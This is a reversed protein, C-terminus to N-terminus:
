EGMIQNIRRALDLDKQTIAKESHTYLSINVRNYTNSWDPHHDAKEAMLAVATMFGFAEVFDNFKFTRILRGDEIKWGKIQEVAQEIQSASLKRTGLMKM